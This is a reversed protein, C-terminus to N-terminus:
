SAFCGTPPASTGSSGSSPTGVNPVVSLVSGNWEITFTSSSPWASFYPGGQTAATAWATGAPPLAGNLTRFAQLAANVSDFDSRCTSVAAQQAPGAINTPSTTVASGTTPSGVV